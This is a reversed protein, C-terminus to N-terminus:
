LNTCKTVAKTGISIAHKALEEPLLIRVAAQIERSTITSSGNEEAVLRAEDVLCEFVNNILTNLISMAKSSVECEPHIQKLIKYLYMSYEERIRFQEEQNNTKTQANSQSHNSPSNHELGFDAESLCSNILQILMEHEREYDILDPQTDANISSKNRPNTNDM